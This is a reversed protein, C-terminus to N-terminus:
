LTHCTMCLGTQSPGTTYGSDVNCSEDATQTLESIPVSPTQSKPRHCSLCTVAGEELVVRKDLKAASTYTSPNKVAYREYDMGVPHGVTLQGRYQMPTGAPKLHVQRAASGDHCQMCADARSTSPFRVAATTAAQAEPGLVFTKFTEALNAAQSGSSFLLTIALCGGSLHRLSCFRYM